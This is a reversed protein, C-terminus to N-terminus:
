EVKNLNFLKLLELKSQISIIDPKTDIFMKKTDDLHLLNYIIRHIWAIPLLVKYKRAYEYKGSFNKSKPFLISLQVLFSHRLTGDKKEIEKLYINEIDNEIYKHGHIGSDSIMRILRTTKDFEIKNCFIAIKKNFLRNCIDILYSSFLTMNYLELINKIECYDFINNYKEIYLTLDILQRYGFGSSAFHKAMHLISYCVLHEHKPVKVFFDDYGILHSEDFIREDLYMEANFMGQSFLRFHLEIPIGGSKELVYNCEHTKFKNVSYGQEELLLIVQDVSDPKIFIDIDTMLRTDRNPYLAKFTYGKLLVYDINSDNLKDFIDKMYKLKTKCNIMRHFVKFKYKELYSIDDCYENMCDYLLCSLQHKEAEFMLNDIQEDSLNLSYEESNIYRSIIDIM